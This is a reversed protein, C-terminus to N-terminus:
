WADCLTVFSTQFLFSYAIVCHYILLDTLTIYLAPSDYPCIHNRFCQRETLLSTKNITNLMLYRVASNTKHGSMKILAFGIKYMIDM